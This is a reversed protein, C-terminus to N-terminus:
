FEFWRKRLAGDNGIACIFVAINVHVRIYFGGCLASNVM